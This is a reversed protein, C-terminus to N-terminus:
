ALDDRAMADSKNMITTSFVQPFTEDAAASAVAAAGGENAMEENPVSLVALIVLLLPV